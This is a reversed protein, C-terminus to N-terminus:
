RSPGANQRLREIMANKELVFDVAQLSSEGQSLLRQSETLTVPAMGAIRELHITRAASERHAPLSSLLGGPAAWQRWQEGFSNVTLDSNLPGYPATPGLDSLFWLMFGSVHPM